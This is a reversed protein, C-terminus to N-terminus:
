VSIRRCITLQTQKASKTTRLTSPMWARRSHFPLPMVVKDIVVDFSSDEFTMKTADMVQYSLSSRKGKRKNM